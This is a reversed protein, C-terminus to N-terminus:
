SLVVSEHKRRKHEVSISGGAGSGEHDQKDSSQKLYGQSNGLRAAKLDPRLVKKNSVEGEKKTVQISTKEGAGRNSLSHKKVLDQIIASFAFLHQIINYQIQIIGTNYQIQIQITLSLSFCRSKM